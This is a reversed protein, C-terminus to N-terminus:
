KIGCWEKVLILFLLDKSYCRISFADLVGFILKNGVFTTSYFSLLWIVLNNLIYWATGVFTSRRQELKESCESDKREKGEKQTNM